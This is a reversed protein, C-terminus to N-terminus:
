SGTIRVEGVIKAGKESIMTKATVQSNVQSTAGLSLESCKVSGSQTGQITVVDADVAGNVQGGNAVDLTKTTIDGTVRGKVSIAGDPASINGDVTLDSEIITGAMTNGM